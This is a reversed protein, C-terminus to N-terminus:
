ISQCMSTWEFKIKGRLLNTLPAAVASFNQCFGRYFVVMGLFRILERKTVPVPFQDIATVKARVPRVHGQGVVKGLYTVTAKTFESKSLNVTLNAAALRDFLARIWCKHELWTDSYVVVDDLYVACGELSAIVRNMLRQFTAPANRLGFSMVKYSFLGSPIVFASIEQARSTLPVQWYGKLLDFKSVYTASGVQDICDEIRPLPYSDPKTLANVKRYDTCFRHSGGSKKVLICPSAWSSFSPEALGNELLYGIETELQRKKELPVRYYRQCVPKADGVDIDHEILNTQTPTDSFLLVYDNILDSMDLRQVDPLHKLMMGLNRLAETNALCGQTVPEGPDLGEEDSAPMAPGDELSTEGGTSALLVPEVRYGEPNEVTLVSNPNEVIDHVFYPKLLNVHCVGTKKRREPTEILYNLDSVQRLVTYPGVFKAQFPSGVVPVLALVQDGPQFVRVEARRDFLQKMRVQSHGM